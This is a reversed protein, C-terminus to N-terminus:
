AKSPNQRYGELLEDNEMIFPAATPQGASIDYKAMLYDNLEVRNRFKTLQYPEQFALKEVFYLEDEAVLFLVGIHGVFLHDADDWTDHFVVSILRVDPYDDFVIRREAWDKRLNEAHVATDQTGETPVTSYLALFRDYDGEALLVSPDEDLSVMDMMVMDTRVAADAPIEVHDGFLGFATIRCNYGLFEPHAENWEDQMAYPDYKTEAIEKQEFGSALGGQSVSDNFQEVHGFFVQRREESIGADTMIVSLAEQVSGDLLNSYEITELFPQEVRQQCGTLAITLCLAGLLLRKM